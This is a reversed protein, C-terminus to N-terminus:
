INQDYLQTYTNWFQLNKSKLDKNKITFEAHM